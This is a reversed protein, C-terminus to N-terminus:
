YMEIGFQSIKNINASKSVHCWDNRFMRVATGTFCAGPIKKAYQFLFEASKGLTISM